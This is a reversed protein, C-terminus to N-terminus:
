WYIYKQMIVQAELDTIAVVGSGTEPTQRRALAVATSWMMAKTEWTIIYCRWM